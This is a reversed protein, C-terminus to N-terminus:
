QAQAPTDASKLTIQLKEYLMGIATLENARFAGRSTCVDIISVITKIDNLTLETTIEDKM